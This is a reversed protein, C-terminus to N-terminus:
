LSSIFKGILLFTAKDGKNPHSILCRSPEEDVFYVKRTSSTNTKNGQERINLRTVYIYKSAFYIKRDSFNNAKDM